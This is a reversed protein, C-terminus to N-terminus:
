KRDFIKGFFGKKESQDPLVISNDFQMLLDKQEKSLRTPTVVKVKLYQDGRGHGRLKPFGRGRMRFTTGTQTGEPVTLKVKGDLTPVELEAGLAAQGFSISFDCLVDDDNRRFFEHPQVTVYIYLDGPPGGLFGGEGEGTMRLRSGNDVGAPIKIKIMREKRVRGNGRCDPCPEEVISGIGKCTSCQQVTQFHGFPTKQTVRVQGSGGCDPCTKRSTGKKAGSGDCSPCNEMRVIKIEKEVGTAAETFKIRVDTRLDSGKQPGSPNGGTGFGGGQGFFAEFIDNIGGFGSFGGQGYGGQGGFGGEFGGYGAGPDNHGFQDYRARQNADSLTEYAESVEKFKQEATKSDPNLDPHYKKALKKYAKKIEEESATKSVGLVEYYDRNSM